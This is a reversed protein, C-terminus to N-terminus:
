LNQSLIGNRSSLESESPNSDPRAITEAVGGAQSVLPACANADHAEMMRRLSEVHKESARLRSANADVWDADGVSSGKGGSSTHSTGLSVSDDSLATISDLSLTSQLKDFEFSPSRQIQITKNLTTPSDIHDWLLRDYSIGFMSSVHSAFSSSNSGSDSEESKDAAGEIPGKRGSPSDGRVLSKSKSQLSIEAFDVTGWERLPVNRDDSQRKKVKLEAGSLRFRELDSALQHLKLLSVLVSSMRMGTVRPRCADLIDRFNRGSILQREETNNERGPTAAANGVASFSSTPL